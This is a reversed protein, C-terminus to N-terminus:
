LDVAFTSAGASNIAVMMDRSVGEAPRNLGAGFLADVVVDADALTAPSLAELPLALRSAAEAADGKLLERGHAALVRVRYGRYSLVRAAVLGDGGNNGPGCVVTIKTGLQHRRAIVDAVARGAHEMLEIGPMGAAITLRDAQAMEENSLLEYM